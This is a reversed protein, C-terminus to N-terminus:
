FALVFFLVFFLVFVHYPLCHVIQIVLSLDVIFSYCNDSVSNDGGHDEPHFTDPIGFRGHESQASSCVVTAIFMWCLQLFMM